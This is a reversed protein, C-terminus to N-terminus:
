SCALFGAPFTGSVDLSGNENDVVLNARLLSQPADEVLSELYQAGAIRGIRLLEQFAIDDVGNEAVLPHRVFRADAEQLADALYPRIRHPHDDGAIRVAFVDDGAEVLGADILVDRLWPLRVPQDVDDLFCNLELPKLLFRFRRPDVDLRRGPVDLLDDRDLAAGCLLKVVEVTDHMRGMARHMVRDLEASAGGVVIDGDRGEKPKVPTDSQRMGLLERCRALKQKRYRNGMFGYYRIRQFGEPLVHVLFRRIFEGADLAM